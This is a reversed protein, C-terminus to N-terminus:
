HRSITFTKTAQCTITVTEGLSMPLSAPSQTMQIDCRASGSIWVPIGSEQNSAKFVLFQPSKGPKTPPTDYYQQCYYTAVDEPQLGSVQLSYQTGSRGASFRSPVGNALNTEHYILLKPLKGPKQQYWALNNYIAQSAQCTITVSDGLSATLSAPSQTMQIDCRAGAFWFLLLGLLQTPTMM